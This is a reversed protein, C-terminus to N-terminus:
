NIILKNYFFLLLISDGAQNSFRWPGDIRISQNISQNFVVIEILIKERHLTIIYKLLMSLSGMYTSNYDCSFKDLIVKLFM